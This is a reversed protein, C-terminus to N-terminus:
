PQESARLAANSIESLIRLHEAILQQIRLWALSEDQLRQADRIAVRSAPAVAEDRLISRLRGFDATMPSRRASELDREVHAVGQAVLFDPGLVKAAEVEDFAKQIANSPQMPDVLAKDAARLHALVELDRDCIKKFAGLQEMAQKVAGEASDSAFSSRPTRMVRPPTQAPLAFSIMAISVALGIRRM